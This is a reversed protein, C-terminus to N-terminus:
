APNEFRVNRLTRRHEGLYSDAYGTLSGVVGSAVSSWIMLM